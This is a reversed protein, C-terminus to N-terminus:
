EVRHWLQTRYFPGLYGRVQLQQGAEVPTLRVRYTSGKTPDLIQGGSWSPEGETKRVGELIVMGLVRQGRRHDTCKSCTVQQKAPDFLKEITGSLVGNSETIRVLSRPQQTEDDITRWLGIPSAELSHAAASMLMLLVASLRGTSRVATARLPATLRQSM